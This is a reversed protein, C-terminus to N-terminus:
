GGAFPPLVDLETDAPLPKTKDRVAVGDVLFSAADLIRALPGPHR